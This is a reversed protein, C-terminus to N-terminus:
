RHFLVLKGEPSVCRHTKDGAGNTDLLASGKEKAERDNGAEFSEDMIKEGSREFATVKYLPM